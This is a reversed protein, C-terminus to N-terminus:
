WEGSDWWGGDVVVGRTVVRRQRVVGDVVVERTVWRGTEGRWVVVVGSRVLCSFPRRVGGVGRTVVRWRGVVERTVWQGRRV